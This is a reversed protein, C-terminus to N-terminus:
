WMIGPVGTVFSAVYHLLTVLYMIREATDTVM